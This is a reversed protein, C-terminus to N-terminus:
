EVKVSLAAGLERFRAVWKRAAASTRKSVVPFVDQRIDYFLNQTAALDTEFPARNALDVLRAARDLLDQNEPDGQWDGVAHQITNVLQYGLGPSDVMVEFAQIDGLLLDAQEVDLDPDALLQTLEHALVVRATSRLEDPIPVGISALFRMLPVKDEYLSRSQDAVEQLTDAVIQSVIRRQDDRFLTALSYPQSEFQRDLERLTGPLDAKDFSTFIADEVQQYHTEDVGDTVGGTLNHDGFHLVGYTLRSSERTITSTISLQGVATSWRGSRGYRRHLSEVDFAHVQTKDEQEDFLGTMAHHAAVTALDVRAPAVYRRYVEAGSGIEPLNSEAEALREIFEDELSLDLAQSALQIVRGAYQIVQVTEIGSLEDFFWGCSTYMLMAHRQLEMLQLALVEDVESTSGVAHATLFSRVSDDSRDLVVDIYDDRAKWPDTFVARAQKEFAVEVTDRLWDLADRLPQRWRQHWGGHMGSNCGCDTHWRGVGHVCSWATNDVIKAEWTPPHEELWQGYVSLDVDPAADIRELAWALAMDGHRQHHGYTEGDAAINALQPVDNDALLGILREAFHDGDNLLGEFALAQSVPRDYIFVTISLDDELEILYPQSPDIRGGSVDVWADDGIERNASVQHPELITFAVGEQAMLRLTETDVATEALWMGEPTRGFRREFDRIGWRIQTLKDRSNSLPMIVHNYVQAIATGHGGFREQGARDADLIAEYVDPVAVEMWALLTPGMNFSMRAYNSVIRLIRGDSDLIRSWANPAYCEASIRENWDHFPYASDQQEISELWPNERPPQYFHGHVCVAKNTL